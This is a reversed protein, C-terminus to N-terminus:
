VKMSFGPKVHALSKQIAVTTNYSNNVSACGEHQEPSNQRSTKWCLHVSLRAYSCKPATLDKFTTKYHFM